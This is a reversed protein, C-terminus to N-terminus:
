GAAMTIFLSDAAIRKNINVLFSEQLAEIEELWSSIRPSPTVEALEALEPKIDINLMATENAGNRLLWVDHVLGQLIELKEEYEEKNKADSMEESAALLERKNGGVAAKLVALMLSRQTRFSAPVIEIARGVSGGSVRAALAADDPSFQCEDILHKELEDFAVPGFRITQCRSRITPLLTDARSAILIIHSTSPPEELTKLLANSAEANMKEADNIIFVRAGAEYPRFHAERELARIANVRLNRNYPVVTGVDPHQSFFVQDSDSGKEFKPIAFEGVRNCVACQGCAGQENSNTCVLSRALEIAFQRKGVGDPGTFLLANPVRGTTVFRLLTKGILKNGILKNM